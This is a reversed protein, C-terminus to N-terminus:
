SYKRSIEQHSVFAQIDAPRTSPVGIYTRLGGGEQLKVQGDQARTGIPRVDVSSDVIPDVQDAKKADKLAQVDVEASWVVNRDLADERQEAVEAIRTAKDVAAKM